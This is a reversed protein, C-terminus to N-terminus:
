GSIEMLIMTSMSNNYQTNVSAVNSNSRFQSKYTTASTTAPSDLYNTSVTGFFHSATNGVIRGARYGCVSIVTSGRLLQVDMGTDAAGEKDNACQSLLVLIKNATSTPTITASLGTDVYTSTSSSTQTSYTGMVVQLVKGGGGGGLQTIAESPAYSKLLGGINIASIDNTTLADIEATTISELKTLFDAPLAHYSETSMNQIQTTTLAQIAARQTTSPAFNNLSELTLAAVQSTSLAVAEATTITRALQANIGAPDYTLASMQDTGLATIAADLAADNDYLNTNETNLRSATVKTQNAVWTTNPSPNPLTM